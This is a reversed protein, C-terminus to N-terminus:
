IGCCAAQFAIAYPNKLPGDGQRGGLCVVRRVVLQGPSAASSSSGDLSMAVTQALLGFCCRRPRHASPCVLWSSIAGASGHGSQDVLKGLPSRFSPLSSKVGFLPEAVSLRPALLTTSNRGIVVCGVWVHRPPVVYAGCHLAAFNGTLRLSAM